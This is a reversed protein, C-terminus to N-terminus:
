NGYIGMPIDGQRETIVVKGGEYVEIANGPSALSGGGIVLAPQDQLSLSTTNHRGLVLADSIGLLNSGLVQGDSAANNSDGIVVAGRVGWSTNSKGLLINWDLAKDGNNYGTNSKGLAVFNAGGISQTNGMAVCSDGYAYNNEGSSLSTGFATNLYGVALSNNYSGNDDGIAVSESDVDNNVGFAASNEGVNVVNTAGTRFGDDTTVGYAM